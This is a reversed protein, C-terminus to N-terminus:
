GPRRGSEWALGAGIRERATPHTGLLFRAIAPPDPNSVNQVALRRQQDVFPRAEGTLELAFTDARAEVRRSLQNSVIGLLLSALAISALLAPVSRAGPPDDGAPAWARTLRAAALMGLPAVLALFLIARRVDGYRVHGLEHAVVLHTEVPPFDDVLTDYLVVRKSSGLGTVYANAATTRRSADVVFVEGVDVGARRALRMVESRLPGPGLREFRNFLPDLVLPGAFAFAAGALVVLAAGAAWWGRPLRRMLAIAVAAGVAAFVAGIAASRGVDWAWGGWPRTVLGIDIARRHAVADLPLTAAAVALSVGAGALAAALLPRRYPRSATSRLRIVLWALLGAQVALSGAYLALQGDRYRDARTLQAPTFYAGLDVPVPELVGGRPRLLLVAVEAAAVAAVLALPASRLARRM